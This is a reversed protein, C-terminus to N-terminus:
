RGGPVWTTLTNTATWTGSAAARAAPSSPRRAGWPAFLGCRATSGAPSTNSPRPLSSKRSPSSCLDGTGAESSTVFTRYTDESRRRIGGIEVTRARDDVQYIIRYRGVRIRFIGDDLRTSEPPRPELALAYIAAMVRPYDAQSLADLERQVRRSRLSVQYPRRAAASM